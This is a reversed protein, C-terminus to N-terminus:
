VVTDSYGGFIKGGFPITYINEKNKNTSKPLTNKKLAELTELEIDFSLKSEFKESTTLNNILILKKDELIKLEDIYKVVNIPKCGIFESISKLNIEYGDYLSFLDSLLIAQIENLELKKCVIELNSSVNNFIQENVHYDIIGTKEHVKGIELIHDFLSLKEKELQIDSDSGATEGNNTQKIVANPFYDKYNKGEQTHIPVIEVKEFNNVLKQLTYYNAHGSTHIPTIDVGRKVINDLFRETSANEKYGEWMSYILKGGQLNKISKIEYDMSTRVTMVINAADDDIEKMSIKYKEFKDILEKRGLKEMKRRLLNPFFVRIGSFGPSPYPVGYGLAALESLVTAIYFDIVFLKKSRKCARFITVLRDINQGSLYVLNIGRTEKFTKVFEIELKEETKFRQKKRSLSTGEMLLWDIKKPIIHLFKYFLKWKRGHARFDGTYLLTEDECRVLFAYADFAAHDMLYPTIEMDGITFPKYSEFYHPSGIIRDKGTFVATLEILTHSAKGLYVPVKKNVFDILGYHDQHAHSILLATKRKDSEISLGPVAPLINKDLLDQASQTKINSSDFGSGNSNMLPMGIDIVIRTTSSCIEVCSGGIEAAGRLITYTMPHNSIPCLHKSILL